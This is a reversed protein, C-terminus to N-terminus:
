DGLATVLEALVVWTALACVLVFSAHWVLAPLRTARALVIPDSSAEPRAIVSGLHRWAGVLLFVGLAVLVHHQLRDEGWWWLSGLGLATVAVVLLTLGSRVFVVALLLGLLLFALLPAAWGVSALWVLLAGLAAPAPYGAWTTAVVGAGTPPGVTIAHGSMDARLVFGTFRRGVAVGVLAHGLEHVLTVVLRLVQWAPWWTIAVAATVLVAALGPLALEPASATPTARDFVDSLLDVPLGYATM